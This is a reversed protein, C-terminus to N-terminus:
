IHIKNRIGATVEVPRGGSEQGKSVPEEKAEQGLGKPAGPGPEDSHNSDQGTRARPTQPQMVQSGTLSM